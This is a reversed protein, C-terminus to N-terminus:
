PVDHVLVFPVGSVNGYRQTCPTGVSSPCLCTETEPYMHVLLFYVMSTKMHIPVNHVLVPSVLRILSTKRGRPVRYVLLTNMLSTETENPVSRVLLYVLSTDM